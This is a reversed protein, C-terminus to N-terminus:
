KPQIEFLYTEETYKDKPDPKGPIITHENNRGFTSMNLVRIYSDYYVVFSEPDDVPSLYCTTLSNNLLIISFLYQSPFKNCDDLAPSGISNLCFKGGIYDPNISNILKFKYANGIEKHSELTGHFIYTKFDDPKLHLIMEKRLTMFPLVSYKSDKVPFNVYGGGIKNADRNIPPNGVNGGIKYSTDFKSTDLYYFSGNTDTSPIATADIGIITRFMNYCHSRATTIDSSVYSGNNPIFGSIIVNPGTWFSNGNPNVRIAFKFPVCRIPADEGLSPKIANFTVVDGLSIYGTPAIPRWLWINTNNTWIKDYSVPGVVNGSVIISGRPPGYTNGHQANSSSKMPFIIEGITRSMNIWNNTSSPGIALDGVPYYVNNRFTYQNARCFRISGFDGLYTFLNTESVYIPPDGTTLDPTVGDVTSYCKDILEPRYQKGMGWYFVDYKKIENFPNDNLWEFEIEAAINEFYALGGANYLKDFWTIWISKLYEILTDPDRYPALQKFEDSGCMQKVKSRIYINDFKVDKDTGAKTKLKDKILDIIANECISDRCTPDCIGSQGTNGKDGTPGQVGQLGTKNKMTLYYNGVLIINIFTAITIIYLLWFLFSIVFEDIDKSLEIGIGIAIIIGIAGFFLLYLIDM